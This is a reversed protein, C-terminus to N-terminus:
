CFRSPYIILLLLIKVDMRDVAPTRAMADVNNAGEDSAAGRQSSWLM